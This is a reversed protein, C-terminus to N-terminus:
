FRGYKCNYLKKRPNSTWSRLFDEVFGLYKVFIKCLRSPCNNITWYKDIKDKFAALAPAHNIKDPILKRLKCRLNSITDTGYHATNM